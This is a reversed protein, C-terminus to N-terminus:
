PRQCFCDTKWGTVLDGTFLILDPQQSAVLDILDQNNEGFESNHLDALHVIRLPQTLKEVQVQEYRVIPGMLLQPYMLWCLLVSHFNKEIKVKGMYVDGLYSIMSFVYFSIGIPLSIAPVPISLDFIGNLNDVLFGTYKFVGLIALNVAVAATMIWKSPIKEMLLALAYNLFASLLMLFIYVPEGYAYFLLSAILLLGNRIKRNPIVTHLILVVPM